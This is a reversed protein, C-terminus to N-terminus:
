VYVYAVFRRSFFSPFYAHHKMDCVCIVICYNKKIKKFVFINGKMLAKGEKATFKVLVFFCM